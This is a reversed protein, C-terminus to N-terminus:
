GPTYLCRPLLGGSLAGCAAAHQCRQMGATHMHYSDKFRQVKNIYETRKSRYNDTICYGRFPGNKYMCTYAILLPSEKCQLQFTACMSYVDDPDENEHASPVIELTAAREYEGWNYM